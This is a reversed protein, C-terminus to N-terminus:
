KSQFVNGKENFLNFGTVGYAVEYQGSQSLDYYQGLNVASSVSEGAKLSIYDQETAPVRKYRPGLYAVPQGDRKVVFLAEEVGGVPTFWKLVSVTDKTNNSLTVTVWVDQTSDFNSQSVSLSVTPGSKSAATAVTTILLAAVMVFVFAFQIRGKRM